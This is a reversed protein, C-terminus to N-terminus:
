NTTEGDIGEKSEFCDCENTKGLKCMGNRDGRIRDKASRSGSPECKSNQWLLCVIYRNFVVGHLCSATIPKRKKAM